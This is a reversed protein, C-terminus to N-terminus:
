YLFLTAISIKRCFLSENKFRKRADRTEKTLIKVAVSNGDDDRGGFVRGAGGEGLLEEATYEAIATRFILPKQLKTVTV